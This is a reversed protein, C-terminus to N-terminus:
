NENKELVHHSSRYETPTVGVFHRFAYSFAHGDCYGLSLAISVITRETNCLEAKASEMLQETLYQKLPIGEKKSFVSSLYKPHYGFHEAIENVSLRYGQNWKIFDIINRHLRDEASVLVSGPSSVQHYLELLIGTAFFNTTAANQYTVAVDNLQTFLVHFRQLSQITGRWPIYRYQEDPVHMAPCDFHLWYFSCFSPEYGFQIGPQMILYQGESVTYKEDADAIYLTGKVMLILQYELLERSMHMWKDSPAEFLGYFKYQIQASLSMRLKDMVEEVEM